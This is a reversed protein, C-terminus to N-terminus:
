AQACTVSILSNQGFAKNEISVKIGYYYYYYYRGKVMRADEEM